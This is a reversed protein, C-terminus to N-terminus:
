KMRKYLGATEKLLIYIVHIIGQLHSCSISGFCYMDKSNCPTKGPLDATEFLSLTSKNKRTGHSNFIDELV